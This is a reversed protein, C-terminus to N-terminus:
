KVGRFEAAHFILRRLDHDDAAPKAPQSEALMKMMRVRLDSQDIFVIM